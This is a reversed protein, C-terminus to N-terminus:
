HATRANINEFLRLNKWSGSLQSATFGDSYMCDLVLPYRRILRSGATERGRKGRATHTHHVFRSLRLVYSRGTTAGSRLYPRFSSAHQGTRASHCWLCHFSLPCFLFIGSFLFGVVLRYAIGFIMDKVWGQGLCKELGLGEWIVCVRSLTETRM